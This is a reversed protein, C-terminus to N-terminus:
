EYNEHCWYPGSSLIAKSTLFLLGPKFAPRMEALFTSLLDEFLVIKKWSILLTQLCHWSYNIFILFIDLMWHTFIVKDLIWCLIEM